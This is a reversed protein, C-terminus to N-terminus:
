AARQASLLEAAIGERLGGRAVEFPVGLVRQTESLIIAGAMLTRARRPDIGHKRAIKASSRDTLMTIARELEEHGLRRGVLKRMARASGGTALAAGIPPVDLVSLERRAEARAARVARRGPADQSLHRSTLRLSGIEFSDVSDPDFGPTGVAVETSGGGVDCVAVLAGDLGGAAAVAGRYAFVGEHEPSLVRPRVGVAGELMRLLTDANASQRGPATVVVELQECGISRARRAYERARETTESLKGGPIRGRREIVEGLGVLAREEHLTAVRGDPGAAAALLRVTNSGVDIIGIRV